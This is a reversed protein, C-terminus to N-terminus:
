GGGQLRRDLEAAAAAVRDSLGVPQGPFLSPVITRKRGTGTRRWTGVVAGRSVVVAAVDAARRFVEKYHTESVYFKTKHALLYPDFKPLFSVEGPELPHDPEASASGPSAEGPSHKGLSAEEGRPPDAADAGGPILDSPRIRSGAITFANRARAVTVGSWAAFDQVTAPGYARLYRVALDSLAVDAEPAARGVPDEGLWARTLCFWAEPGQGPVHVIKGQYSLDKLVGGWSGFLSSLWPEHHGLAEEVGRLLASRSLPGGQLVELAAEGAVRRQEHTAYHNLFVSWRSEWDPLLAARLIPLDSSDVVHMTGRVTWTRVLRRSDRLDQDMDGPQVRASRAMWALVCNGEIQDQVGCLHRTLEVATQSGLPETLGQRVAYSSCRRDDVDM